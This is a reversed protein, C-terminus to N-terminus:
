GWLYRGRYGWFIKHHLVAIDTTIQSLKHDLQHKQHQLQSTASSLTQHSQTLHKLTNLLPRTPTPPPLHPHPNKKSLLEPPHYASQLTYTLPPILSAKKRNSQALSSIQTKCFDSFASSHQPHSPDAQASEMNFEDTIHGKKTHIKDLEATLTRIMDINKRTKFQHGRLEKLTDVLEKEMDTYKESM